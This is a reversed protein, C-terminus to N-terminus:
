GSGETQSMAAVAEVITDYIEVASGEDPDPLLDRVQGRDSREDAMRAPVRAILCLAM